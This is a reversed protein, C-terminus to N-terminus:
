ELNSFQTANESAFLDHIHVVILDIGTSVFQIGFIFDKNGALLCDCLDNVQNMANRGARICIVKDDGSIMAKDVLSIFDLLAILNLSDFALCGKDIPTKYYRLFGNRPIAYGAHLHALDKPICICLPHRVWDTVIDEFHGAAPLVIHM